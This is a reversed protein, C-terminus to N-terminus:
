KNRKSKKFKGQGRPIAMEREITRYECERELSLLAKALQRPNWSHPNQLCVVTDQKGYPIRAFPSKNRDGAKRLIFDDIRNGCIKDFVAKRTELVNLDKEICKEVIEHIEKAVELLQLFRRHRSQKEEAVVQRRGPSLKTANRLNSLGERLVTDIKPHFHNLYLLDQSHLWAERYAKYGVRVLESWLTSSGQLPGKWIVEEFVAPLDMGLDSYAKRVESPLQHSSTPFRLTIDTYNERGRLFVHPCLSRSLLEKVSDWGPRPIRPPQILEERWDIAATKNPLM